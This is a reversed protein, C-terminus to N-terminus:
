DKRIVFFDQMSKGFPRKQGDLATKIIPITGIDGIFVFINEGCRTCSLLWGHEHPRERKQEIRGEECEVHSFELDGFSFDEGKDKPEVIITFKM